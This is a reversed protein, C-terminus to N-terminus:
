FGTGPSGSDPTKGYAQPSPSSSSPGGTLPTLESQQPASYSPSAGGPSTVPKNPDVGSHRDDYLNRARVATLAAQLTPHVNMVEDLHTLELPRRIAPSAAVIAFRAPPSMAERTSILIRLGVSAVFTVGTLDLILSRHDHGARARGVGDQFTAATQLDIVGAVVLVVVDDGDRRVSVTVLTSAM